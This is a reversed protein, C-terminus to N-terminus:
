ALVCLLALAARVRWLLIGCGPELLVLVGTLTRM